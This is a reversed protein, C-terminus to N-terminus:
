RRRRAPRRRYRFSAQGPRPARRPPAGPDARFGRIFRAITHEVKARPVGYTERAVRYVTEIAADDRPQELPLVDLRTTTSQDALYAHFKDLEELGFDYNPLLHFKPALLRADDPALRFALTRAAAALLTQRIPAVPGGDSLEGLHTHALVVFLNAESGSALLRNIILSLYRQADDLYLTFSPAPEPAPGAAEPPAALMNARYHLQALVLAAVLKADIEDLGALCLILIRRKALIAGFPITLRSQALMDALIPNSQLPEIKNLTSLVNARRDRDNMNEFNMEWFLHEKPDTVQALQRRRYPEHQLLQNIAPLAGTEAALMVRISHLLYQQLQPGWSHAYVSHLCDVLLPAYTAHHRAPVHACLNLGVPHEQNAVPDILVVDSLRRKPLRSILDHIDARKVALFAFGRGQEADDLAARMLATSKGVGAAGICHLHGRPPAIFFRRHGYEGRGCAHQTHGLLM